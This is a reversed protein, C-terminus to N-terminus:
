FIEAISVNCDHIRIKRLKNHSKEKQQSGITFKIPRGIKSLLNNIKFDEFIDKWM